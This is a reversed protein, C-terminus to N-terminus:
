LVSRGITFATLVVGVAYIAPLGYATKRFRAWAPRRASLHEVLFGFGVYPLVLPLLPNLSWALAFRGHLLAHIARQAGCGACQWGTAAHVPCRPFFATDAPDFTGYVWVFGAVVAVIGVIYRRRM